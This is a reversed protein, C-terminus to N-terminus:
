LLEWKYENNEFINKKIKNHLYSHNKGLFKCALSMSRFKFVENTIKNTLLVSKQPYFGNEFGKQINEKRTCWELNEVRNNRSNGDIHNVTLNEFGLFTIAVLRSVLFTKPKGDKWLNVRADYRGPSCSSKCWKQKLIRTKWHRTGHRETYTTKNFTRINGLNSAQYGNYGPIDKWVEQEKM